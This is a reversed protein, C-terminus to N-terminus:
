WRLKRPKPPNCIVTVVRGGKMRYSVGRVNRRAAGARLAQECEAYIRGRIAEVDMGCVRELYRLLAHDTVPHRFRRTM